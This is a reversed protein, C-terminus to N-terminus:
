SGPVVQEALQDAPADASSDPGDPWAVDMEYHDTEERYGHIVVIRAVKFQKLCVVIDLSSGIMRRLTRDSEGRSAPRALALLRDPVEEPRDAHITGLCRHGSFAAHIFALAEDGVIEGICYADLSMTLGDRVLDYLSVPRGGEHPKKIRQLLCCPKEPYLESDSEAVLVRELRPLAELFARLLTTKGAAGKGCFLVSRGEEAWHRLRDAVAQDFMGSAQLDPLHLSKQRHKRISLTPYRVSRPPITVNIRLRNQEDTVRCHSDNENIQGGNRIVLLRCFTDYTQADPFRLPLLQRVGDRKITFADPATADVDTVAEDLICAQLPGYGFLFDMVQQQLDRRFFGARVSVQDATRAIIDWLAQRPVKHAAVAAVTAADSQLIQSCVTAVLAQLDPQVPEPGDSSAQDMLLLPRGAANSQVEQLKRALWAHSSVVPM